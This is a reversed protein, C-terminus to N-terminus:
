QSHQATILTTDCLQQDEENANIRLYNGLHQCGRKVWTQLDTLGELPFLIVNGKESISTLHKGNPAFHLQSVGSIHGNLPVVSKTSRSWLKITNDFSGSAFMQSDPSFSWALADGEHSITQLLKQGKVDWLQIKKRNVGVALIQGDPSLRLDETQKEVELKETVTDLPTGDTGWLQVAGGPIATIIQNPIPPKTITRDSDSQSFTATVSGKIESADILTKILTGNSRWLKVVSRADSSNTVTLLTQSDESFEINSTKNQNIQTAAALTARFTGQRADWLKVPGYSDSSQPSTVISQGDKSFFVNLFGSDQDKPKQTKEILTKVLKGDGNWLQVPGYVDSGQLNTVISKGDQSVSVNLYTSDQGKPKQTKEILTKVLKGDGNWLQLPGYADPGQLNTVISKGDQSVLVSLYTSDQDKPNQTKEILTKVLKGDGNWLQLPGYADSDSFSTVITKGNQSFQLDALGESKPILTAIPTGDMKWVAVPGNEIATAFVQKDDSFVTRNADWKKLLSDDNAWVKLTSDYSASVITKGDPSLDIATVWDGHGVLNALLTGDLNWLKVTKDYSATVVRQSDPSLELGSIFQEHTLTTRLSGDLRWLKVFGKGSSTNNYVAAVTKGDPSFLVAILYSNTSVTSEALPTLGQRNRHQLKLTKGDSMVALSGDQNLARPNFEKETEVTSILKGDRRWFNMVQQDADVGAVTQGDQSFVITSNGLTAIAKGDMQWLQSVDGDFTAITRHDPSFQVSQFGEKGRIQSKQKGDVGWIQIPNKRNWIQNFTAITQNDHSFGMVSFGDETLDNLKAMQTGDLRWLKNGEADVTALLQGNPSFLVNSVAGNFNKLRNKERISFVSQQLAALVQTQLSSDGEAVQQDQLKNAARLGLLLADFERGLAFQAKSSEALAKIEGQRAVRESEHAEQQSKFASISAVVAVGAIVTMMGLLSRLVVLRRKEQQVAAQIANRSCQIFTTQLATAPPHKKAQNAEQFWNEAIAFESGRLLLDADKDRKEWEIARQLWKTHNHVHERDTDLTRLLENFHTYFDGEQHTFDIWQVKALDPHLEAPNVARYLITIIRKNLKVAYEVEDACYPSNVSRPSLVFLFNEANEIGRYIEQQFDSGSAISEQDFWTTKGQMQLADNLKRAFDSDTRSYSVFVELSIGPPQQLSAAIFEEQLPLPPHLSRAKGVKLWSEAHQLNYGRLLISPNRNQREWKLAKTLLIKHEEYYAADQHLTRVLHSEDQQYDLEITNDTLDIYQLGQLASPVQKLDAPKVLLPIIRKNLSLAYEIEQQCYTSELSAPSMLYVLNDAEEIGRYIAEVFSVGTQIDTKNTWVTFGERRLSQRVKEMVEIEEEAYSLFVQTMLNNANKISETIFECHLYSPTCPAQEDKFRMKLWAEAQRREDGVLLYRSQKQQRGWELAKSLLLTHQRVYSQQRSLIELLGQFAKEFDDIGERCYIWNIKALEPHLNPFSSHLGKEQYGAWQAETGQPFRQQWIEQTIQEVHLIPIIRKNYLLARNVEKACYPSNVSHPAIIFLFNDACEIGNDIQNQYDVGLPIDDFDFWVELGEAVLRDNLTKAFAKSDARGYSIFADQFQNM